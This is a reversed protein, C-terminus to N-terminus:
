AHRLFRAKTRDLHTVRDCQFTHEVGPQGVHHSGHRDFHVVRAIRRTAPAQLRPRGGPLSGLDLERASPVHYLAVLSLDGLKASSPAVLIVSRTASDPLGSAASNM